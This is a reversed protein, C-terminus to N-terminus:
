LEARPPPNTPQQQEQMTRKIMRRTFGPSCKSSPPRPRCKSVIPTLNIPTPVSSEVPPESSQSSAQSNVSPESPLSPPENSAASSTENSKSNTSINSGGSGGSEYVPPGPIVYDSNDSSSRSYLIGPDHDGYTGPIAVGSPVNSGGGTVTLQVCNPYFQAGGVTRANHLAIIESRLLYDGAKIDSPITVDRKGNNAILKDTSWQKSSSDWGEEYIKFWVNGAGNSELPAMYVIVPGTHSQSIPSTFDNDHHSWQLSIVSGAAIPCKETASADMSSTRCTLDTSSVSTVPFTRLSNSIYPRVCETMGHTVGNTTVGWLFTHARALTGQPPIQVTPEQDKITTSTPKITSSSQPESSALSPSVAESNNQSTNPVFLPPGPITYTAPDNKRDYLIGPDQSSYIGPIAYGKPQSSAVGNNVTVALCNPYFQAGGEKNAQHLALLEARVLYNGSPIESPITVNFFGDNDIVKVTCWKKASSDWGEEFIKFWVDGDGQSSLPAMYIMCPGVHSRSMVPVSVSNNYHRWRIDLSEGANISIKDVGTGSIASKSRCRLDASDLDKIPGNGYDNKIQYQFDVGLNGSAGANYVQTHAQAFSILTAVLVIIIQFYGQSYM